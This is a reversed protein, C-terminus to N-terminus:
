EGRCQFCISYRRTPIFAARRAHRRQKARRLWREHRTAGIRCFYDADFLQLRRRAEALLPRGTVARRSFAIDYRSAYATGTDANGAAM